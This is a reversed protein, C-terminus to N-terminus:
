AMENAAPRLLCSPAAVPSVRASRCSPVYGALAVGEAADHFASSQMSDRALGEYGASSALDRAMTTRSKESRQVGAVASMGGNPLKLTKRQKNSSAHVEAVMTDHQAVHWRINRSDHM